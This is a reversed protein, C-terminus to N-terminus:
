NKLFHLEGNMLNASRSKLFLMPLVKPLISNIWNLQLCRNDFRESIELAATFNILTVSSTVKRSLEIKTRIKKALIWFIDRVSFARKKWGINIFHIIKFIMWVSFNSISWWQYLNANSYNKLALKIVNFTFLFYM